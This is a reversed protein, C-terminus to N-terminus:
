QWIQIIRTWCSDFESNSPQATWFATHHRPAEALNSQTEEGRFLLRRNRLRWWPLRTLKRSTQWYRQFKIQFVVTASTFSCFFLLARRASISNLQHDRELIELPWHAESPLAVGSHNNQNFPKMMGADEPIELHQRSESPHSPYHM